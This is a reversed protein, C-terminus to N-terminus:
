LTYKIHGKPLPRRRRLCKTLRRQSAVAVNSHFQTGYAVIDKVACEWLETSRPRGAWYAIADRKNTFVHFGLRYKDRWASAAAWRPAPEAREWVRTRYHRFQYIGRKEGSRVPLVVVYGRTIAHRPMPKLFSLCM